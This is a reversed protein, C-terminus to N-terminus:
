LNPHISQKSREYCYKKENLNNKPEIKLNESRASAETGFFKLIGKEVFYLKVQPSCPDEKYSCARGASKVFLVRGTVAVM